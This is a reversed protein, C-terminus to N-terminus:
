YWEYYEGREDHVSIDVRKDGKGLAYAHRKADPLNDFFDQYRHEGGEDTESITYSVVTYRHGKSAFIDKSM